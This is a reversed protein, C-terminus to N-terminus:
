RKLYEDLKAAKVTLIRQSNESVVAIQKALGAIDKLDHEFEDRVHDKWHSANLTSHVKKLCTNIAADANRLERAMARLAEPNTNISSTM